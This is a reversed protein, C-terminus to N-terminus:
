KWVPVGRHLRTAGAPYAPDKITMCETATCALSMTGGVPWLPDLTVSRSTVDWTGTQEKEVVKGECTEVITGTVTGDASFRLTVAPTTCAVGDASWVGGWEAVKDADTLRAYTELGLLHRVEADVSARAFDPDGHAMLLLGKPVGGKEKKLHRIQAIVLDVDGLISAMAALHYHARHLKQDAAAARRFLDMAGEYDRQEYAAIGKKHLALAKKRDANATATFSLVCILAVARLM